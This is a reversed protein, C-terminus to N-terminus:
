PDPTSARYIVDQTTRPNAQYGLWGGAIPFGVLSLGMLAREDSCSGNCQKYALHLASVYGLVFGGGAGIAAGILSGRRQAPTTIAVIDPRPIRKVVASIETVKRDALFVGDPALRVNDQVFRSGASVQLFYAPHTSAIERLVRRVKSNLPPGALDLVILESEDANVFIRSAALGGRIEVLIERGPALGTVRPWAHIAPGVTGRAGVLRTADTHVARMLPGAAPQEQAQAPLACVLLYLVLAAGGGPKKDIEM